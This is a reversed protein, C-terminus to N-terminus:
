PFPIEGLHSAVSRLRPLRAPLREHEQHIGRDPNLDEPSRASKVEPGHGVQILHDGTQRDNLFNELSKKLFVGEADGSLRHERKWDELIRQAPLNKFFRDLQISCGPPGSDRDPGADVAQNGRARDSM